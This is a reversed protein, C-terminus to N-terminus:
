RTWEDVKRRVDDESRGLAIQEEEGGPLVKVVAWQTSVIPTPPIVQRGGGSKPVVAAGYSVLRREQLQYGKYEIRQVVEHM